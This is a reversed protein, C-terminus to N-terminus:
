RVIKCLRYRYTIPESDTFPPLNELRRSLTRLSAGTFRAVDELTSFSAVPLRYIDNDVVLYTTHKAM